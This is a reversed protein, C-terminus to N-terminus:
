EFHFEVLLALRRTTPDFRRAARSADKDQLSRRLDDDPAYVSAGDFVTREMVQIGESRGFGYRSKCRRDREKKRTTRRRATPTSGLQPRRRDLALGRRGGAGGRQQGM